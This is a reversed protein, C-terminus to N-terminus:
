KDGRIRASVTGESQFFGYALQKFEESSGINSYPNYNKIAKALEVEAVKLDYYLDLPVKCLFLGQPRSTLNSSEIGGENNINFIFNTSRSIMIKFRISQPLQGRDIRITLISLLNKYLTNKM